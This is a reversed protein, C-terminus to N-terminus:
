ADYYAGDFEDIYKRLAMFLLSSDQGNHGEFEVGLTHRGADSDCWIVTGNVQIQFGDDEEYTLALKEGVPFPRPMELGVGSFSVDRIKTINITEQDKSVYFQSEQNDMQLGSRAHKRKETEM